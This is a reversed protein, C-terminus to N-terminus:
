GTSGAIQALWLSLRQMQMDLAIRLDDIFAVYSDLLPALGPLSQALMPALVYVALLLAAILLTVSFGRNFLRAPAQATDAGNDSGPTDHDAARSPRRDSTARLTSNIEEIDPLLARRSDAVAAAMRSEQIDTSRASAQRDSDATVEAMAAIARAQDPADDAPASAPLPALTEPPPPPPNSAAPRRLSPGADLGLDPQSELTGRREAARARAEREAEERLMDAVSSDLRRRPAPRDRDPDEEYDDDEAIDPIRSLPDQPDPILGNGSAAAAHQAPDIPFGEWEPEPHAKGDSPQPGNDDPQSTAPASVSPAPVSPAPVSPAPVSPAPAHDQWQDDQPDHPFEDQQGSDLGDYLDDTANTDPKMRPHNQFWTAGCSSCQVDRGNEPIVSDPVEYQAGCNPCILRM